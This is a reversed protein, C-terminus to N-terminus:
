RDNLPQWPQTKSVSFLLRAWFLDTDHDAPEDVLERFIREKRAVFDCDDSSGINDNWTNTRRRIM